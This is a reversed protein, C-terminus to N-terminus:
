IRGRYRLTLAIVKGQLRDNTRAVVRHVRRRIKVVSYSAPGNSLVACTARLVKSWTQRFKASNETTNDDGARGM